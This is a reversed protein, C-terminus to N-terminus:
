SNNKVWYDTEDGESEFPHESDCGEDSQAALGNLQDISITRRQAAQKAREDALGRGDKIQFRPSWGSNLSRLFPDDKVGFNERITGRLRSIIKANQPTVPTIKKRAMGLLAVGQKNVTCSRGDALVLEVPSVRKSENRASIALMNNPALGSDAKDGVFMISLEDSTLNKMKRFVECQHSAASVPSSQHGVESLPSRSDAIKADVLKAKHAGHKIVYVDIAVDVEERAHRAVNLISCNALAAALTLQRNFERSYLRLQTDQAGYGKVMRVFIEKFHSPEASSHTFPKQDKSWAFEDVIAHLEDGDHLELQVDDLISIISEWVIGPWSRTIAIDEAIIEKYAALPVSTFATAIQSTGLVALYEKKLKSYVLQYAAARRETQEVQRLQLKRVILERVEQSLTRGSKENCNMEAM